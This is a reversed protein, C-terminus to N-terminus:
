CFRAIRVPLCFLYLRHASPEGAITIDFTGMDTSPALLMGRHHAVEAAARGIQLTAAKSSHRIAIRPLASSSARASHGGRRGHPQRPYPLLSIESAPANTSADYLAVRGDILGGQKLYRLPGLPGTNGAGLGEVYIHGAFTDGVIPRSQYGQSWRNNV